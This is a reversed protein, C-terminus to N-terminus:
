ENIVLLPSKTFKFLQRSFRKHFVSQWLNYHHAYVAVMNPEMQRLVKEFEGIKDLGQVQKLDTTQHTFLKKMGNKFANIKKDTDEDYHTINLATITAPKRGLIEKIVGLYDVDSTKGDWAYVWKGLKLKKYNLPIVLMPSKIKGVLNACVDGFVVKDLGTRKKVGVVTLWPEIEEVKKAINPILFGYDVSLAINVGRVRKRLYTVGRRLLAGAAKIDEEPSYVSASAGEMELMVPASVVHYVYITSNTQQAIMTALELANRSAVSFDHAVLIIKTPKM